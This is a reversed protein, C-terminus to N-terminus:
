GAANPVINTIQCNQSLDDAILAQEWRCRVQISASNENVSLFKDPAGDVGWTHDTSGIRQFVDPNILYAEGRMLMPHM